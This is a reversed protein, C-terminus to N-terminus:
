GAMFARYSAHAPAAKVTDECCGLVLCDLDPVRLSPIAKVRQGRVRMPDIVQCKRRVEGEAGSVVVVSALDWVSHLPLDLLGFRPEFVCRAM